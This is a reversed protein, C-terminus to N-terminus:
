YKNDLRIFPNQETGEVGKLGSEEEFSDYECSSFLGFSLCLFLLYKFNNM